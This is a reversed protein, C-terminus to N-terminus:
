EERSLGFDRRRKNRRMETVSDSIGAVESFGGRCLHHQEHPPGHHHWCRKEDTLAASSIIELHKRTPKLGELYLGILHKLM